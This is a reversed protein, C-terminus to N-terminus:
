GPESLWGRLTQYVERSSLLDVHNTRLFTKQHGPPFPLTREPLAHRGLASALPVLGDGGTETGATTAAAAYCAVGVPLPTPIRPDQGHAFRDRRRKQVCTVRALTGSLSAM